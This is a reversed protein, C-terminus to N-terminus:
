KFRFQYDPNDRMTQKSEPYNEIFWTLFQAYDIKESLMKQRRVEWKEKRDSMCLIEKVVEYMKWASGQASARIGYGLHYVEELENLYGIRGVFDNFRVFPVGVVGAEAAMTQSDGIYLDAFAMVHHMDLTNIKIRYSEFQPELERESTIYIRGYQKLIDILKQAIETNIGKIGGDHFAKLNSFRILFYPTDVPFYKEVIAIDPTFHNPHLYALEHYGAYKYCKKTLFGVDCSVPALHCKVFPGAIYGFQPVVALDDEGTNISDKRMLWGVHAVEVTSGTLLEIRNQKVFRMMRWDRVFTDMLVGLKSRRHPVKLINYYPLGSEKLLDELIDKTKIVIFVKYGDKMLNAAVNKYLHFHAPHSLQILINKNKM